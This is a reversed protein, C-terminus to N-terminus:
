AISDLLFDIAADKSRIVRGKKGARVAIEPMAEELRLLTDHSVKISTWTPERIVCHDETNLICPTCPKAEPHECWGHFGDPQTKWFRCSPM